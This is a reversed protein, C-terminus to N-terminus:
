GREREDYNVWILKARGIRCGEEVQWWGHEEFVEEGGAALGEGELGALEEEALAVRGRGEVEEGRSQEFGGVEGGCALFGDFGKEGFAGEDAGEAAGEGGLGAGYGDCGDLLGGEEAEGEFFEASGGEM